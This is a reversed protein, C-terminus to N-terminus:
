KFADIVDQMSRLLFYEYRSDFHSAKVIREFKRLEARGLSMAGYNFLIAANSLIETLARKKHEPMPISQMQPILSSVAQGATIVTLYTSAPKSTALFDSAQMVILYTGLKFVNTTTVNTATFLIAAPDLNDGAYFAWSFQMPLYFPDTCHSGDLVIKATKNNPSIATHSRAINEGIPTPLNIKATPGNVFHYDPEFNGLYTSDNFEIEAYLNGAIMSYVENTTLLVSSDYTDSLAAVTAFTGDDEKELIRIDKATEPLEIYIEFRNTYTPMGPLFPKTTRCYNAQGWLEPNSPLSNSLASLNIYFFMDPDLNQAFASCAM